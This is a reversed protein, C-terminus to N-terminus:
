SSAKRRGRGGTRAPPEWAKIEPITKGLQKAEDNVLGEFYDGMRLGDFTADPDNHWQKLWPLLELMGALLPILRPDDRGGLREQIDVYYASIAKAQQLHDYGAWAIVPTGDPGACHPFNIWREKPVDLKGRLRWLNSDLFDKSDYKTPVPIDGVQQQKLDRAADDSLHQPDTSPLKTRADIADEQRQLDWTREWVGRKILGSPKYRLVPLLPVCEAAVLETVLAQVDFAPDDRFLEGVQQFEADQRAVDALKAISVLAIDALPPNHPPVGQAEAFPTPSSVTADSGRGESLSLSTGGEGMRGDFDFYSELRDLLWERLARELQTDWPETNWRRKYEPQEILRINPDSAILDIRRQVLQRYDDPWEAPLETIPTSGHREFWTTQTEGAAMKRALVIEFARQGLSLPPPERLPASACLDSSTQDEKAGERRQTLDEETLGYLRYCEWDLEEQYAIMQSRALQAASQATALAARTPAGRSAISAPQFDRARTALIDLLRATLLPRDVPLPLKLLGTSTFERFNEFAVTAQRAGHADVTSGKDHFIQKMWFCATSSNLLGLLGLHDDDSAERPLKIVPASQKFVKDGRDLVFHNHTAVFAFAIGTGVYREPHFRSFEYWTKGIEHHNGNPERREWLETRFHWLWRFVPSHPTEVAVALAEDYPFLIADGDAIRYDRIRDGEVFASIHGPSIRRRQLASRPAIYADDDGTHAIRGIAIVATGLERCASSELQEKLEAAGGGGISWPHKHFLERPSDGISVFESQSGPQDLQAVIASWVLGRAPDDPTAPEGRIGMVTRLTSAIPPRHRGFLIVTPTGHGPVYAGSTDIVHTLDVSPFFSEILKKGFERKMFSNATIQGTYGAGCNRAEEVGGLKGRHNEPKQVVDGSDDAAVYHLPGKVM